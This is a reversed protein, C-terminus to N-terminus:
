PSINLILYTVFVVWCAMLSGYSFFTTKLSKSFGLDLNDSILFALVLIYVIEYLNISKLFYNLYDIGIEQGLLGYLSVPSFHQIFALTLDPKAIFVLLNVAKEIVFILEAICVSSFIIALSKTGEISNVFFLGTYIILSIATTKIILQIFIFITPFLYKYKWNLNEKNKNIIDLVEDDYSAYFLSEYDINFRLFYFITFKLLILILFTKM